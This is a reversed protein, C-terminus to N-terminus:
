GKIFAHMKELIQATLQKGALGVELPPGVCSPCGVQCECAAIVERAAVLLERHRGYIGEALGIGGPYADYIYLTPLGTHVARVQPVVRIDNYDCMLLAPALNHYLNALGMLVGEVQQRSLGSTIEEDLALWFIATHLDEQPLNIMGDGVNEHSGYKIKKFVTAMQSVLVEGYGSTLPGQRRTVFEDLVKIDIALDADTYYDVTVAQVYARCGEYDLRSVQYTEGQHLYIAGEYLQTPVSSRDMEGLVRPHAPVTIDMIVFSESAASRLSIEHAPFNDGMWYYRDEVWYLFRLDALYELLAATEEDSGIEEQQVPLEFCACKLHEARIVINRPNILGNEPSRGFFYDPHRVMYQDLPSSNAVLVALSERGRRGARGAQQWSSAITGPYGSIISVDLSGIDIGLEMANTTTIGDIEGQRLALEIKRRESPLYGGRYSAIRPPNRRSSFEERLYKGLLEVRARSRAFVITQFKENLFYAAIRRTENLSGKRIGLEANIVPPNYFLFHKKEGPAGNNTIETVPQGIIRSALEGPNAITASAMIFVPNSGYYHAIRQLRAMVQALHSGFVGRYTHLEDIVVYRLNEFLSIWKTHHPLIATHLMDPNTIVLQAAERVARRADAPTDGDYTYVKVPKEMFAATEMLESLQDSALAKTPFLYLARTSEDKAIADLVPLNYCWTKGSATPTVVVCHQGEKVRRFAEEQHSYLREIGRAALVRALDASCDAPMPTYAAPRENLLEHHVIGDKFRPDTKFKDIATSLLM